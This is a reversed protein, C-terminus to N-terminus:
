ELTSRFRESDNFGQPFFFSSLWYCPRPGQSLWERVFAIRAMLDNVWAALLKLSPYAFEVWKAPVKQILFNTYMQELELSLVVDGQHSEAAGGTIEEHDQAAQKLLRDRTTHTVM